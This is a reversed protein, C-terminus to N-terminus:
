NVLINMEFCKVKKFPALKDIIALRDFLKSEFLNIIESLRKGEILISYLETIKM